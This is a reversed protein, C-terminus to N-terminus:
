ILSCTMRYANPDVPTVPGHERIAEGIGDVGM